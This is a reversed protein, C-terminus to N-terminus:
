VNSQACVVIVVCGNFALLRLKSLLAVADQAVTARDYVKYPVANLALYTFLATFLSTRVIVVLLQVLPSASDPDSDPDPDPLPLPLPLAEDTIAGDNDDHDDNHNDDAGFLAFWAYTLTQHWAYGTVYYRQYPVTPSPLPPSHPPSDRLTPPTDSLVTPLTPSHTHTPPNVITM